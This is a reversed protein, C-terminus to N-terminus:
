DLKEKWASFRGNIENYLREKEVEDVNLLSISKFEKLRLDEIMGLLEAKKTLSLKENQAAMEIEKAEIAYKMEIDTSYNQKEIGRLQVLYDYHKEVIAARTTDMGDATFALAIVPDIEKTKLINIHEEARRRFFNTKEIERNLSEKKIETDLQSDIIKNKMVELRYISEARRENVKCEAENADLSAQYLLRKTENIKEIGRNIAAIEAISAEIQQENNGLFPILQYDEEGSYFSNKSSINAKSM